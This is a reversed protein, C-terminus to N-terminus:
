SQAQSSSDIPSMAWSAAMAEPTAASPAAVTEDLVDFYDIPHPKGNVLLEFDNAALYGPDDQIKPLLENRPLSLPPPGSIVM